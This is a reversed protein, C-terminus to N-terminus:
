FDMLILRAQKNRREVRTMCFFFILMHVMFWLLQRAKMEVESILMLYFRSFTDNWIKYTTNEKWCRHVTWEYFNWRSFLVWDLLEQESRCNLLLILSIILNRKYRFFSVYSISAYLLNLHFSLLKRSCNIQLFHCSRMKKVIIASSKINRIQSVM